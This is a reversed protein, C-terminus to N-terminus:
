DNIYRKLYQLDLKWEDVLNRRQHDINAKNLQAKFDSYTCNNVKIFHNEYRKTDDFRLSTLGFHIVRHCDPCIAKVDSLIQTNTNEDYVWQEHTELRTSKRGCIMCRGNARERADKKIFEWQAKSLLSRLNSYWCSDPVLEFNLIFKNDEM